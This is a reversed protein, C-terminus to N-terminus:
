LRLLFLCGETALQGTGVAYLMSVKMLDGDEKGKRKGNGVGLALAVEVVVRLLLLPV